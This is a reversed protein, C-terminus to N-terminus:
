TYMGRYFSQSSPHVRDKNNTNHSLASFPFNWYPYPSIIPNGNNEENNNPHTNFANIHAPSYFQPANNNGFNFGRDPDSPDGFLISFENSDDEEEGGGHSLVGGSEGFPDPNDDFIIGPHHAFTESNLLPFISEYTESSSYPPTPTTTKITTTTIQTPTTSTENKPTTATSSYIFPAPKITEAEDMLPVIETAIEEQFIMTTGEENPSATQTTVEGGTETVLDYEVSQQPTFQETSSSVDDRYVQSPFRPKDIRHGHMEMEM